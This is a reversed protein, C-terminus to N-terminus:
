HFLTERLFIVIIFWNFPHLTISKENVNLTPKLQRIFLSESIKQKFNPQYDNGLIQFDKEWVYTHGNERAHKLLLSSNDKNNHDKIREVIHRKDRWFLWEQIIIIIFTMIMILITM